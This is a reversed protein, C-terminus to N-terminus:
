PRDGAGARLIGLLREELSIRAPEVAHVRAGLAVLDRVLDPVTTGDDEAPLGVTFWEGAREVPGAAALRAQGDAGLGTLHLRVERRGLLEALTGSAAVRGRDLVARLNPVSTPVVVRPDRARQPEELTPGLAATLEDETSGVHIGSETRAVEAGIVAVFSATSAQEGGILITEDEARIVNRHVVGAIEFLEIRPGSALQELLDSLKEGLKYPGIGDGRIAYPPLPGVRDTSPEIVRRARQADRPPEKNERQRNGCGGLAGLGLASVVVAVISAHRM